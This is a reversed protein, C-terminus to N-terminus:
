NHKTKSLDIGSKKISKTFCTKIKQWRKSFNADKIPLSWIMHLHEPLVVYAKIQFPHQQKVQQFAEKLLHIEKVLLCSKRDHLALTFFYTGGPVFNRRYLVM